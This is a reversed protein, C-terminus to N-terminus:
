APGPARQLVYVLFGAFRALPSDLLRWELRSWLPGVAPLRHVLAHPTVVRIGARAVVRTGAPLYPGVEAPSLYRTPIRGEDYRASTPRAGGLRKALYRLSHRNYLDFCLFGGPRVVRAM